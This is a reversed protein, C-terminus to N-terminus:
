RSSVAKKRPELTAAFSDTQTEVKPRTLSAQLCYDGSTAIVTQDHAVQKMSLALDPHTCHKLAPLSSPNM